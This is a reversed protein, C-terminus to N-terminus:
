NQDNDSGELVPMLFFNSGPVYLVQVPILMTEDLTGTYGEIHELAEETTMEREDRELVQWCLDTKGWCNRGFLDLQKTTTM